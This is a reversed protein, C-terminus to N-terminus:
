DLKVNAWHGAIVLESSPMALEGALLPRHFKQAGIKINKLTRNM